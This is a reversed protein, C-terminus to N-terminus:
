DFSRAHFNVLFVCRQSSFSCRFYHRATQHVSLLTLSFFAFRVICFLEILWYRYSFTHISVIKTTHWQELDIQSNTKGFCEISFLMHLVSRMTRSGFLASYKGLFSNHFHTSYSTSNAHKHWASICYSRLFIISPM